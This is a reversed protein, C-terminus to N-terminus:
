LTNLSLFTRSKNEPVPENPISDRLRPALLTTKTAPRIGAFEPMRFYEILALHIILGLAFTFWFGGIGVVLLGFTGAFMGSVIRKSYFAQTM